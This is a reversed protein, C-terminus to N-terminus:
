DVYSKVCKIKIFDTLIVMGVREELSEIEKVYWCQELM